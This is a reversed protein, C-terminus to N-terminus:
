PLIFCYETSLTELAVYRGQGVSATDRTFRSLQYTPWQTRDEIYAAVIAQPVVLSGTDDSECLVMPGNGAHMMTIMEWRVRGVGSSSPTWSITLDETASPELDCDIQDVLPEPTVTSISFAPLQNGDATLTATEGGTFMPDPMDEVVDYYHNDNPTMTADKALGTLHMTGVDVRQPWPQCVGDPDCYSDVDCAPECFGPEVATLYVCDGEVISPEWFGEGVVGFLAGPAPQQYFDWIWVPVGGSDRVQVGGVISEPAAPQGDTAPASDAGGPASDAGGAAADVGAGDGGGCAVLVLSAALVRV